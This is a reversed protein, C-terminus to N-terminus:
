PSVGLVSALQRREREDKEALKDALRKYKVVKAALLDFSEVADMEVINGDVSVHLSFYGDGLSLETFSFGVHAPKLYYASYAEAIGRCESRLEELTWNKM